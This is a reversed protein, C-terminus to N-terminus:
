GPGIKKPALGKSQLWSLGVDKALSGKTIPRPTSPTAREIIVTTGQRKKFREVMVKGKPPMNKIVGRVVYADWSPTALERAKGRDVGKPFELWKVITFPQSAAVVASSRPGLALIWFQLAILNDIALLDAGDLQRPVSLRPQDFFELEVEDEPQDSSKKVDPPPKVHFGDPGYTADASALVWITNTKQIGFITTHYQYPLPPAYFPLAFQHDLSAADLLPGWHGIIPPQNSYVVRIYESRVNQVIGIRWNETKKPRPPKLIDARFQVRSSFRYSLSSEVWRGIPDTPQPQHPVFGFDASNYLVLGM